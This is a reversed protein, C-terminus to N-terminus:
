LLSTGGSTFYALACSSQFHRSIVYSSSLVSSPIGTTGTHFHSISSHFILTKTPIGLNIELFIYPIGLHKGLFMSIIIHFGLSKWMISPFSGAIEYLSGETNKAFCGEKINAATGVSRSLRNEMIKRM